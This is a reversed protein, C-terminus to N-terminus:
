EYYTKLRKTRTNDSEYIYDMYTNCIPCKKNTILLMHRKHAFFRHGKGCEAISYLMSYNSNIWICDDCFLCSLKLDANCSSPITTIKTKFKLLMYWEKNVCMLTRISGICLFQILYIKIDKSLVEM